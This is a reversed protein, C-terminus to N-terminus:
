KTANSPRTARGQRPIGLDSAQFQQPFSRISVLVGSLTGEFALRGSAVAPELDTTDIRLRV